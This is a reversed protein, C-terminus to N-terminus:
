KVTFAVKFSQALRRTEPDSPMPFPAAARVAQEVSTKVEPNSAQIYISSILGSDTLIVRATAVDGKCDMPVQWERYVRNRFDQGIAALTVKQTSPQTPHLLLAQYQAPSMGQPVADSRIQLTQSTTSLLPTTQAYLNLTCSLTTFIFLLKKM